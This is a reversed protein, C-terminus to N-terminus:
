ESLNKRQAGPWNTLSMMWEAKWYTNFFILIVSTTWGEPSLFSSSLNVHDNYSSGQAPETWSSDLERNVQAFGKSIVLMDPSSWHNWFVSLSKHETTFKPKNQHGNSKSYIFSGRWWLQSTVWCLTEQLFCSLSLKKIDRYM